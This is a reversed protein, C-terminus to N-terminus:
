GGVSKGPIEGRWQHWGWFPGTKFQAPRNNQPIDRPIILNLHHRKSKETSTVLLTMVLPKFNKKPEVASLTALKGKTILLYRYSNSRSQIFIYINKLSKDGVKSM